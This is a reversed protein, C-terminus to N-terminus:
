VRRRGPRLAVILAIVSVIVGAVILGIRWLGVDRQGGISQAQALMKQDESEGTKGHFDLLTEVEKGDGQTTGTRYADHIDEEVGIILGSKPEVTIERWGSHFLQAPDGSEKDTIENRIGQYSARVSTPEIEQRFVYVPVSEGTASTRMDERNFEAPLAKRLTVDFYDYTQQQTNAPLKAWYGEMPVDTSPVVPTDSVKAAGGVAEGTTRDVRYSFVQADLLAQLDDDIDQRYTSVGVRASAEKDDAPQDLSVSFQRAVPTQVPKDGDAGQYNPGVTADPDVLSLTSSSLELPVPREDAIMRPLLIGAVILAVGVILALLAIIRSKSLMCVM